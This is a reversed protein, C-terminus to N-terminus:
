EIAELFWKPFTAKKCIDNFSGDVIYFKAHDTPTRVARGYMQVIDKATENFYWTWQNKEMLLYKVRADSLSPYPVKLLIQFRCLDDKLDVGEKVAPSILIRKKSNIWEEIVEGNVEQKNHLFTSFGKEGYEDYGQYGKEYIKVRAYFQVFDGEELQLKDFQKGCDMWLHSTVLKHNRDIVDALLVTKIPGKYGSKMGFRTFTAKYKERENIKFKDALKKRLKIV